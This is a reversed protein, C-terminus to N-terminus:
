QKNLSTIYQFRGQWVYLIDHDTPLLTNTDTFPLELGWMFTHLMIKTSMELNAEQYFGHLAVSGIDVHLYSTAVKFSEQVLHADKWIIPTGTVGLKLIAKTQNVIKPNSVCLPCYLWFLRNFSSMSCSRRTSVCFAGIPYETNITARVCSDTVLDRVFWWDNGVLWWRTRFRMKTIALRDCRTSFETM